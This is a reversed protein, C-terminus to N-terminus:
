LALYKSPDKDFEDKCRPSCFWTTDGEVVSYETWDDGKVMDCIPDIPGALQAGESAMDHEHVHQDTEQATEQAPESCAAFAFALAVVLSLKKM